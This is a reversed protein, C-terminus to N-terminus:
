APLLVLLRWGGPLSSLMSYAFLYHTELLFNPLCVLASRFTPLVWWTGAVIIARGAVAPGGLAMSGGTLL